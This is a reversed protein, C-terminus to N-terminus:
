APHALDRALRRLSYKVGLSILPRTVAFGIRGLAGLPIVVDEIMSLVSGGGAAEAVEFRGTGKLSGVHDVEFRHPPEWATIVMTDLFGLRGFGTFAEIGGGVGHGGNATGRVTTALMYKSQRGPDTIAAWVDEVPADVPVSVSVHGLPKTTTTM